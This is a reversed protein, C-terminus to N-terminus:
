PVSEHRRERMKVQGILAGWRVQKAMLLIDGLNHHTAGVEWIM